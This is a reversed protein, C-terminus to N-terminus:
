RLSLMGDGISKRAVKLQIEDADTAFRVVVGTGCSSLNFTYTCDSCNLQAQARLPFRGYPAATGLTEAGWGLGELGLKSAETWKNVTGQKGSPPTTTTHIELLGQKTPAPETHGLIRQVKDGIYHAFATFALNSVHCGAIPGAQAQFDSSIPGGLKGSGNLYYVGTDGEALLRNFASRYGNRTSNQHVDQGNNMWKVTEDHGEILLVPTNPQKARLNKIFNYTLCEVTSWNGMVVVDEDMNYECDLVFIEAHLESLIDGVERQMLGHGSFGLNVVPRKIYREVQSSYVMGARGAAAGHLISTGYIVVNKQEPPPPPEMPQLLEGPAVGVEVKLLAGRSPLYLTLNRDGAAMVGLTSTFVKTGSHQALASAAMGGATNGPNNGSSTAWRWGGGTTNDQAYIDIGSHGNFAWLWDGNEARMTWRVHVQTASTRLKVHLGTSSTSLGWVACRRTECEHETCPAACKATKSCLTGQAHSPLRNYPSDMEESKWGRGRVGLTLADTWVTSNPPPGKVGAFVPEDFFAVAASGAAVLFAVPVM